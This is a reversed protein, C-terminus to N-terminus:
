KNDEEKEYAETIIQAEQETDADIEWGNIYYKM